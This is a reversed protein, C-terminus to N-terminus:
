KRWTRITKRSQTTAAHHPEPAFQWLGALSDLCERFRRSLKKVHYWNAKHGVAETALQELSKGELLVAVVLLHGEVGLRDRAKDYERSATMQQDNIAEPLRGGDVRDRTPDIARIRGILTQEHILQFKRGAAFQSESIQRRAKMYGLRDDRLNAAVRVRPRKGTEPNIREYPDDVVLSDSKTSKENNTM